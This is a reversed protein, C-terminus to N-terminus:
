AAVREERQAASNGPSFLAEHVEEASANEVWTRVGEEIARLFRGDQSELADAVSLYKVNAM